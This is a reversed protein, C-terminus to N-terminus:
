AVILSAQHFIPMAVLAVAFTAALLAAARLGFTNTM